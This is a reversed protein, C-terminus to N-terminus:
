ITYFNNEKEYAISTNEGHGPLVLTEKPLIYLKERVSHLLESMNGGPFDTRGVSEAFLTDGSFLYKEEETELYYCIGGQTHGPTKICKVKMGLLDLLQGDKLWVDAEISIYQGYQSSLNISPEKLTEKEDESAYLLLNLYKNKIEEVAGIHDFHGHTLLIAVPKVSYKEILEIVERAPGAPDIVICEESKEDIVLYVNTAIMGVTKAVIKMYEGNEKEYRM